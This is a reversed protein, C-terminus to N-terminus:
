PRPKLAGCDAGVWRGSQQMNMREPKGQVSTDVVMKMTYAKDGSFSMEGSGKSPPNTCSFTFRMTSGSREVSDRKCRGDPDQPLEGREAEEKGICYRFSNKLGAPAIGVGQKAMMDEMMKRQEPPMKALQEQMRALQAEMQGSASTMTIATEWLGPAVKQAQAPAAALAVMVALSLPLPRFLTM